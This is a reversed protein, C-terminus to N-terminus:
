PCNQCEEPQSQYERYGQHNTTRYTLVQNEPCLYCDYYDDYIFDKPRLKAKKGHPRTYPFVPIVKQSLLYHAITLTKYSADAILYTPQFAKLQAFLAPFAQSDHVNRATM